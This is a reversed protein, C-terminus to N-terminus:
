QPLALALFPNNRVVWGLRRAATLTAVRAFVCTLPRDKTFGAAELLATAVGAQRSPARTYVWAVVPGSSVLYGVITSPDDEPTMVRVEYHQLVAIWLDRLRSRFLKAGDRDVSRLVEAGFETGCFSEVFSSILFPVDEPVGPRVTMGEM